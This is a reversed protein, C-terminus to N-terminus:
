IYGYVEKIRNLLLEASHSFNFRLVNERARQIMIKRLAIDSTARELADHISKIDNPNFYIASDGLVEPLSSTNSSLIPCGCSQAELPPIGFGELRSPIIYYWAKRYHSILEEDTVRGIYKIRPDELAKSLLTPQKKAHNGLLLLRARDNRFLKFASVLGQLNKNPDFSGLVIFTFTTPIKESNGHIGPDLSFSNKCFISPVANSIVGISKVPIGFVESIEKKSFESVTMLLRARKCSWEVFFVYFLRMLLPYSRPYRKFIVDHLVITSKKYFLPSTNCLNILNNIKHNYLYLPLTVQEWFTGGGGKIVVVREPTITADFQIQGEPCLLIVDVGLFILERVIERAFRQVGTIEKLLFKGNVYLKFIKDTHSEQSIVINSM